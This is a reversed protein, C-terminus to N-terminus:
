PLRGNSGSGPSSSGRQLNCRSAAWFCLTSLLQGSPLQEQNVLAVWSPSSGHRRSSRLRQFPISTINRFILFIVSWGRFIRMQWLEYRVKKVEDVFSKVCKSHPRRLRQFMPLYWVIKAPAAGRTLKGRWSLRTSDVFLYRFVCRKDTSRFPPDFDGAGSPASVMPFPAGKKMYATKRMYFRKRMYSVPADHCATLAEM